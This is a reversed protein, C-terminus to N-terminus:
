RLKAWNSDLAEKWYEVHLEDEAAMTLMYEIFRRVTIQQERSLLSLQHLSYDRLGKPDDHNDLTLHFRIGEDYGNSVTRVMAAPLYYRFGIPDLFSFGGIGPGPYWDENSLLEEWSSDTDNYDAYSEDGGFDVVQAGRWSIGGERNVDKFVRHIEAILMNRESDLNVMAQHHKMVCKCMEQYSVM